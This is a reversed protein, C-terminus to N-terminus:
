FFRLSTIEPKVLLTIVIKDGPLHHLGHGGGEGGGRRQHRPQLFTQESRPLGPCDAKDPQPAAAPVADGAEVHDPQSLDGAEVDRGRALDPRVSLLSSLPPERDM